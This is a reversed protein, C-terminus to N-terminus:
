FYSGSEHKGMAYQQATHKSSSDEGGRVGDRAARSRWGAGRWAEDGMTSARARQTGHGTGRACRPAVSTAAAVRSRLLSINCHFRMNCTYTKLHKAITEYPHQLFLDPIPCTAYTALTKSAHQLYKLPKNLINYRNLVYIALTRCTAYTECM